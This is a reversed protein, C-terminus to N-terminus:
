LGDHNSKNSTATELRNSLGTLVYPLIQSPLLTILRWWSGSLLLWAGLPTVRRTPSDGLVVPRAHHGPDVWEERINHSVCWMLTNGYAKCIYCSAVCVGSNLDPIVFTQSGASVQINRKSLMDLHGWTWVTGYVILVQPEKLSFSDALSSSSLECEYFRLM